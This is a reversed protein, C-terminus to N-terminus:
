SYRTTAVDSDSALDDDNGRARMTRKAARAESRACPASSGSIRKTVRLLLQLKSDYLETDSLYSTGVVM